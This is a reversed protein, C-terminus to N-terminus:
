NGDLGLEKTIEKVRKIISEQSPYNEIGMRQIQKDIAETVAGYCEYLQCLEVILKMKNLKEETM